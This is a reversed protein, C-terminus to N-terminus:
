LSYKIETEEDKARRWRPKPEFGVLGFGCARGPSWSSSQQIEAARPARRIEVSWEGAFSSWVVGHQLVTIFLLGSVKGPFESYFGPLLFSWLVFVPLEQTGKQEPSLHLYQIPTELPLWQTVTDGGSTGGARPDRCSNICLGWPM